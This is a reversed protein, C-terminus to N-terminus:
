SVEQGMECWPVEQLAWGAFPEAGVAVIAEVFVLVLVALQVLEVRAGAREERSEFGPLRLLTALPRSTAGAIEVEIEVVARISRVWQIEETFGDVSKRPLIRGAQRGSELQNARPHGRTVRPRAQIIRDTAIVLIVVFIFPIILAPRIM